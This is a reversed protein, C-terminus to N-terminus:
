DVSSKVKTVKTALCLVQAAASTSGILSSTIAAVSLAKNSIKKDLPEERRLM